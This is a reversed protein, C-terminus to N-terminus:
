SLALRWPQFVLLLLCTPNKPAPTPPVIIPKPALRQAIVSSKYLPRSSASLSVTLSLTWWHFVAVCSLRSSLAQGIISIPVRQLVSSTIPRLISALTYSLLITIGARSLLPREKQSFTSVVASYLSLFFFISLEIQNASYICLGM